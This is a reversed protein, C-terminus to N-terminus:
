PRLWCTLVMLWASTIRPSCLTLVSTSPKESTDFRVAGLAVTELVQGIPLAANEGGGGGRGNGGLRIQNLLLLREECRQQHVDAHQHQVQHHTLLVALHM